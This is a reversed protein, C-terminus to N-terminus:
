KRNIAADFANEMQENDLVVETKDIYLIGDLHDVEHQIARAIFAMQPDHSGDFTQMMSDLNRNQWKLVIAKAREVQGHKGPVSLCGELDSHLNESMAVIRPNFYFTVPDSKNINLAFVRWPKGLQTAAIGAVGPEKAIKEMEQMLFIIETAHPNKVRKGPRHLFAEHNSNNVTLIRSM